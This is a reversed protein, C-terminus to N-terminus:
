SIGGKWFSDSAALLESFRELSMVEIGDEARLEPGGPYVIFRRVLGELPAIARLGRCWREHFQRGSKVEIAIREAGRALVFDM